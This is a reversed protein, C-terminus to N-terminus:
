SKNIKENFFQEKQKDIRYEYVGYQALIKISIPLLELCLFFIMIATSIWWAIGKKLFSPIQVAALATKLPNNFDKPVYEIIVEKNHGSDNTIFFTDQISTLFLQSMISDKVLQDSSLSKDDTVEEEKKTKKGEFFNYKEDKMLVHLAILKAIFGKSANNIAEKGTTKEADITNETAILVSDVKVIQDTVKKKKVKLNEVLNYRTKTERNKISKCGLNSQQRKLVVVQRDVDKIRQKGFENLRTVKKGKEIAGGPNEFNKILEGWTYEEGNYEWATFKAIMKPYKFDIIAQKEKEYNKVKSAYSNWLRICGSYEEKIAVLEPSSEINENDLLQAKGLLGDLKETKKTLDYQLEIEQDIEVMKEHNTEWLFKDIHSELLLVEVPKSIILAIVISIIIRPLAQKAEILKRNNKDKKLTTVFTRDITLIVLGWVVGMLISIKPNGTTTYFAYGGSFSAFISVLVILFGLGFFKIRESLPCDKLLDPDAGALQWFFSSFDSYEKQKSIKKKKM